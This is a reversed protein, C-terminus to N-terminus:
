VVCNEENPVQYETLQSIVTKLYLVGIGSVHM